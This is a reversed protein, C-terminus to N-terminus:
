REGNLETKILLIEKSYVQEGKLKKYGNNKYWNIDRKDEKFDDIHIYEDNIQDGDLEANYALVKEVKLLPNGGECYGADSVWINMDDPYKSLIEKLKKVNM